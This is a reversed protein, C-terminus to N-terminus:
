AVMWRYELLLELRTRKEIEGIRVTKSAITVHANNDSDDASPFSVAIQAHFTRLATVSHSNDVHSTDMGEMSTWPREYPPRQSLADAFLQHEIKEVATLLSHEQDEDLQGGIVLCM